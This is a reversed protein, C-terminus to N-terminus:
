LSNDVAKNKTEFQKLNSLNCVVWGAQHSSRRLFGFINKCCDIKWFAERLLLDLSDLSEASSNKKDTSPQTTHLALFDSM